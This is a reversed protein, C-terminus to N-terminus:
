LWNINKKLRPSARLYIIEPYGLILVAYVNENKNLSLIKKCKASSNIADQALTVFCAGLGCIEASLNINYAALIADEKPTPIIKESHVIIIVPAHYFFPDNGSLADNILKKIRPGYEKNKFFEKQFKNLFPKVLIGFLFNNLILSRAKYIKVLENKLSDKIEDSRIVTFNISRDNGGSPIFLGSGIIEELLLDDVDKDQFKRYSRRMSFLNTLNKMNIKEFNEPILFKEADKICIAEEPCVAYCHYCKVCAPNDFKISKNETYFVHQSCVKTCKGCLVCKKEDITLSIDM